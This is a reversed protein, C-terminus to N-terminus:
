CQGSGCVPPFMGATGRGKTRSRPKPTRVDLAMAAAGASAWVAAAWGASVTLTPPAPPGCPTSVASFITRSIVTRESAGASRSSSVLKVRITMTSPKRRCAMPVWCAGLLWIMMPRASKRVNTMMAGVMVSTFWTASCGKRASWISWCSASFRALPGSRSNMSICVRSFSM